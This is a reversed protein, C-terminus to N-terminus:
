LHFFSSTKVHILSLNQILKFVLIAFRFRNKTRIKEYKKNKKTNTESQKRFPSVLLKMNNKNFCFSAPGRKEIKKQWDFRILLWFLLIIQCPLYNCPRLIDIVFSLHVFCIKHMFSHKQFVKPFAHHMNLQFGNMVKNM